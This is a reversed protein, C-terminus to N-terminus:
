NEQDERTRIYDAGLSPADLNPDLHSERLGREFQRWTRESLRPAIMPYVTVFHGQHLKVRFTPEVANEKLGKVNRRPKARKM